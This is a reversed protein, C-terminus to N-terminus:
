DNFYLEKFEDGKKKIERAYTEELFGHVRLPCRSSPPLLNMDYQQGMLGVCFALPNTM